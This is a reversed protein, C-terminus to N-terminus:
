TGRNHGRVCLDINHAVNRRFGRYPRSCRSVRATLARTFHSLRKKWSPGCAKRITREDIYAMPPPLSM